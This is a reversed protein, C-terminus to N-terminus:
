PTAVNSRLRAASVAAGGNTVSSYAINQWFTWVSRDIGGVVGSTPTGAILFQLGGIAKSNTGDSYIGASAILTTLSNEANKVRGAVLNIMQEEGANMLEELGSVSVAVAAQRIYFEAASFVAQPAINLVEYGSYWNATGNLAYELEQWITRGGDFPRANGKRELRRLLANNRTVNDAAKKSRNEITTTVIDSVNPFTPM